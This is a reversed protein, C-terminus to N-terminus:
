ACLDISSRFSFTLHRTTENKRAIWMTQFPMKTQDRIKVLDTLERPRDRTPIIVSTRPFDGNVIRVFNVGRKITPNNTYGCGIIGVKIKRLEM